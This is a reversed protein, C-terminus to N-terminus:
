KVNRRQRWELNYPSLEKGGRSDDENYKRREQRKEVKRQEQASDIREGDGIRQQDRQDAEEAHDSKRNKYKATDNWSNEFRTKYKTKQRPINEDTCNNKEAHLYKKIVVAEHVFM